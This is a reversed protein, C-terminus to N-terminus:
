CKCIHLDNLFCRTDGCLFVYLPCIHHVRVFKLFVLWRLCYSKRYLFTCFSLYSIGIQLSCYGLMIKIHLVVIELWRINVQYLMNVGSARSKDFSFTVFFWFGIIRFFLNRTGFPYLAIVRYGKMKPRLSLSLNSLSSM